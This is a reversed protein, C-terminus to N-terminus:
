QTAHRMKMDQSLAISRNRNVSNDQTAVQIRPSARTPDQLHCIRCGFAVPVDCAEALELLSGYASLSYSRIVAPQEPGGPHLRVTLYQGPLPDATVGGPAAFTFSTITASERRIAMM